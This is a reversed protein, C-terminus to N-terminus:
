LTFRVGAVAWRPPTRFGDEYYDQGLANWVRVYLRTAIRETTHFSYGASVGLQRPGPFHYAYGYLPYLYSSGGQFDVALDVPGLQQTAVLTFSNPLIRPSQLPAFPTGTFYQSTRDQANTYTYSGLM